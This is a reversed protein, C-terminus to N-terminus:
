YKTLKSNCWELWNQFKDLYLQENKDEKVAQELKLKLKNLAKEESYRNSQHNYTFNFSSYIFAILHKEVEYLEGIKLLNKKCNKAANRIHLIEGKEYQLVIRFVEALRHNNSHQINNTKRFHYYEMLYEFSRDYNKFSFFLIVMNLYYACTASYDLGDKINEFENEIAKVRTKDIKNKEIILAIEEPHLQRFVRIRFKRVSKALDSLKDKFESYAKKNGLRNHTVCILSLEHIYREILSSKLYKSDELLSLLHATYNHLEHLNNQKKALIKKLTINYYQGMYSTYSDPSFSKDAELDAILAEITEIKNDTQEVKFIKLLMERQYIIEQMAEVAYKKYHLGKSYGYPNEKGIMLDIWILLRSAEYLKEWQQFKFTQETALEFKNKALKFLNRSEFALGDNILEENDIRNPLIKNNLHKTLLRKCEEQFKFKYTKLTKLSINKFQSSYFDIASEFGEQFYLKYFTHYIPLHEIELLFEEREKISM